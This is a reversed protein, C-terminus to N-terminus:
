FSDFFSTMMCTINGTVVGGIRSHLMMEAQRTVNISHYCVKRINTIPIFHPRVMSSVDDDAKLGPKNISSVFKSLHEFHKTMETALVMDVIQQRIARFDERYSVSLMGSDCLSIEHIYWLIDCRYVHYVIYSWGLIISYCWLFSISTQIFM